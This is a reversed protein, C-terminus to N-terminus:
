NRRQKKQLELFDEPELALIRTLESVAKRNHDDGRQFREFETADKYGAVLWIDKRKVKAGAQAMKLIFKDIRERNSPAIADPPSPSVVAESKRAQDELLPRLAQDITETMESVTVNHHRLSHAGGSELQAVTDMVRLRTRDALKELWYKLRPDHPYESAELNFLARAYSALIARLRIPRQAPPPPPNLLEEQTFAGTWMFVQLERLQHWHSADVEVQKTEIEGYIQLGLDPRDSDAM